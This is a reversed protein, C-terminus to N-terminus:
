IRLDIVKLVILLTHSLKLIYCLNVHLEGSLVRGRTIGSYIQIIHLMVEYPVNAAVNAFRYVRATKM